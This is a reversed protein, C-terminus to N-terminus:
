ASTRFVKEFVSLIDENSKTKIMIKVTSKGFKAAAVKLFLQPNCDCIKLVICSAEMSLSFLYM